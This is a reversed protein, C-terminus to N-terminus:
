VFSIYLRQCCFLKGQPDSCDTIIVDFEDQHKKLFDIGDQTLVRVRRDNLSETM